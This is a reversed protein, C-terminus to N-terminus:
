SLMQPGSSRAADLVLMFTVTGVGLGDIEETDVEVEPAEDGDALLVEDIEPKDGCELTAMEETEPADETTTDDKLDPEDAEPL